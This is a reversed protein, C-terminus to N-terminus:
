FLFIRNIIMQLNETRETVLEREGPRTGYIDTVRTLLPEQEKPMMPAAEAVMIHQGTKKWIIPPMAM